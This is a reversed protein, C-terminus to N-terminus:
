WGAFSALCCYYSSPAMAVLLTIVVWADHVERPGIEMWAMKACM